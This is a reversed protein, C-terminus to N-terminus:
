WYYRVFIENYDPFLERLYMLVKQKLRLKCDNEDYELDEAIEDLADSSFDLCQVSDNEAMQFFTSGLNFRENNLHQKIADELEFRDVTPVMTVKM